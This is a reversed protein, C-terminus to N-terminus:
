IVNNRVIEIFITQLESKITAFNNRQFMLLLIHYNFVNRFIPNPQKMQLKYFGLLKDKTQNEPFVNLMERKILCVGCLNQADFITLCCISLFVFVSPLSVFDM